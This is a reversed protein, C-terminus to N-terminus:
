IEWDQEGQAESQMNKLRGELDSIGEKNMDVITLKYKAAKFRSQSSTRWNHHTKQKGWTDRPM